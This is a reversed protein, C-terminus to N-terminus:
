IGPRRVASASMRMSHAASLHQDRQIQLATLPVDQLVFCLQLSSPTCTWTQRLSDQFAATSTIVTRISSHCAVQLSHKDISEASM